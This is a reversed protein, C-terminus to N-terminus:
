LFSLYRGVAVLGAMAVIGAILFLFGFIMMLMAVSTVLM